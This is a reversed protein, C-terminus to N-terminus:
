RRRRAAVLGALGLLAAGAPAPTATGTFTINGFRWNGSNNNYIVPNGGSLTAGAYTGLTTDYASVLRVGFSTNNAVGAIASFDITNTPSSAGYFDNPVANLPANINTWTAGDLTYQEQLNRVGQNTSYWDFSVVIGQYGATNVDFEAGQSYQPASNNWGNGPNAGRIRWLFETSHGSGAQATSLVDCSAVSGTVNNSYAYNNTMGLATATGSGITPAPSNDPSAVATTFNWQAITSQATAVAPIAAVALAGIARLGINM